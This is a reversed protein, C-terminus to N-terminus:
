FQGRGKADDLDCNCNTCFKLYTEQDTDNTVLTVTVEVDQSDTALVRPDTVISPRKTNYHYLVADINTTQKKLYCMTDSTVQKLDGLKLSYAFPRGSGVINIFKTENKSEVLRSLALTRLRSDEILERHREAKNQEMDKYMTETREMNSETIQLISSIDQPAKSKSPQNNRHPKGGMAVDFHNTAKDEPGGEENVDELLEDEVDGVSGALIQTGLARNKRGEVHEKNKPITIEGDFAEGAGSVGKVVMKKMRPKGKNRKDLQLIDQFQLKLFQHDQPNEFMVKFDRQIEKQQLYDVLLLKLKKKIQYAKNVGNEWGRKVLKKKEVLPILIDKSFSLKEFDIKEIEMVHKVQKLLDFWEVTSIGALGRAPSENEKNEGSSRPTKKKKKKPPEASKLLQNYEPDTDADSESIKAGISRKFFNTRSLLAKDDSSDEDVSDDTKDETDAEEPKSTTSTEAEALDNLAKDVDNDM